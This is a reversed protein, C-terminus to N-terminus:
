HQVVVKRLVSGNATEIQLFYTGSPINSLDLTLNSERQNPMDLVNEGLVNLVSVGFISTSGSLITINGSAPNPYISLTDSPQPIEAVASKPQLQSLPRKWVGNDTGAILASDFIALANVTLFSLGQNVYTWNAGSDTSEIVGGGYLGAFLTTGSVALSSVPSPKQLTDTNWAVTWTQGNDVSKRVHGSQTGIWLTTGTIAASIGSEQTLGTEAWTKGSDTSLAAGTPQGDLIISDSSTLVQANPQGNSNVYVPFWNAGSDNSRYVGYGGVGSDVGIGGEFLSTGISALTVANTYKYALIWKSGNNTSHYVGTNPGSTFIMSGISAFCTIGQSGITLGTDANVWLFKNTSDCRVMYPAQFLYNNCVALVDANSNMGTYGLNVWQAKCLNAVFLFCAILILKKM